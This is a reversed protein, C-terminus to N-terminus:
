LERELWAFDAARIERLLTERHAALDARTPDEARDALYEAREVYRSRWYLSWAVRSLM